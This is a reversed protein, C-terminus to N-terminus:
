CSMSEVAGRQRVSKEERTERRERRVDPLSIERALCEIGREQVVLDTVDKLLISLGHSMRGDTM